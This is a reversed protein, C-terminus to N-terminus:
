ATCFGRLGVLPHLAPERGAVPSCTLSHERPGGSCGRFDQDQCAQIAHPPRNHVEPGQAPQPPLGCAQSQPSESSSAHKNPPIDCVMLSLRSMRQAAVARITPVAGTRRARPVSPSPGHQVTYGLYSINSSLFRGITYSWSPGTSRLFVSCLLSLCPPPPHPRACARTYHAWPAATNGPLAM